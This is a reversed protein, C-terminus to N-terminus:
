RRDEIKKEGTKNIDRRDSTSYIPYIAGSTSAAKPPLLKLASPGFASTNLRPIMTVSIREWM